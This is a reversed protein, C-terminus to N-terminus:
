GVQKPVEQLTNGATLPLPSQWSRKSKNRYPIRPFCPEPILYIQAAIGSRGTMTKGSTHIQSSTKVGQSPLALIFPQFLFFLFPLNFLFSGKFDCKSGAGSNKCGNCLHPEETSHHIVWLSQQQAKEFRHLSPFYHQELEASQSSLPLLTIPNTQLCVTLCWFLSTQVELGARM